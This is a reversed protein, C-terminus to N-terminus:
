DAVEGEGTPLLEGLDTAAYGLVCHMWVMALAHGHAVLAEARGIGLASLKTRTRANEAAISCWTAADSESVSGLITQARAAITPDENRALQELAEVPSQRIDLVTALAGRGHLAGVRPTVTNQNLISMSRRFSWLPLRLRALRKLPASANAIVLTLDRSGPNSDFWDTGLNNYVGGDSLYLTSPPHNSLELRRTRLRLPRFGLPFAASAYVASAIPLKGCRGEGVSSRFMGTAHFYFPEGSNLDTACFVHAVTSPPFETMPVRRGPVLSSLGSFAAALAVFLASAPALAAPEPASSEGRLFRDYVVRQYGSRVLPFLMTMVGLVGLLVYVATTLPSVDFAPAARLDPASFDIGANAEFYEGVTYLLPLVVMLSCAALPLALWISTFFVGERGFRDTLDKSLSDFDEQTTKSYDGDLAVAANTISGGSVSSIAAVETNAGSRALHRLLGLGFLSARVGGGSLAV